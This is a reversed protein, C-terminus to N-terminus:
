DKIAMFWEHAAQDDASIAEQLDPISPFARVARHFKEIVLVLREDYYDIDPIGLLHAEIRQTSQRVGTTQPQGIFILSPHDRFKGMDAFGFYVGQKLDTQAAINATPYGIKRGNGLYRTVIGEVREHIM